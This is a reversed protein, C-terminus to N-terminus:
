VAQSHSAEHFVLSLTALDTVYENEGVEPPDWWGFVKRGTPDRYGFLEEAHEVLWTVDERSAFQLPIASARPGHNATRIMRFTNAATRQQRVSSDQSWRFPGVTVDFARRISPDAAQGFWIATLNVATM